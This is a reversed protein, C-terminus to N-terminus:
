VSWQRLKSDWRNYRNFALRLRAPSLPGIVGIIVTYYVHFLQYNIMESELFSHPRSTDCGLRQKFLRFITTMSVPLNRSPNLLREFWLLDDLLLRRWPLLPADTRVKCTWTDGTEGICLERLHPQFKLLLHLLHLLHLLQVFEQFIFLFFDRGLCVHKWVSIDRLLFGAVDWWTPCSAGISWTM